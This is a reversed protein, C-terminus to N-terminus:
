AWQPAGLDATNCCGPGERHTDPESRSSPKTLIPPPKPWTGHVNGFQFLFQFNTGQFRSRWRSVACSCVCAGPMTVCVCVCVSIVMCVPFCYFCWCPDTMGRQGRWRLLKAAQERGGERKNGNEGETMLLRKAMGRGEEDPYQMKESCTPLFWM